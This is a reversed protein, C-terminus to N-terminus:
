KFPTLLVSRDGLAREETMWVYHIESLSSDILEATRLPLSQASAAFQINNLEM